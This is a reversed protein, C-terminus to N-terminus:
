AARVGSLQSLIDLETSHVANDHEPAKRREEVRDKAEQASRLNAMTLSLYNAVAEFIALDTSSYERTKAHNDVYLVGLLNEGVNLPACMITRLHYLSVSQSQVSEMERETDLLFIPKRTDWVQK